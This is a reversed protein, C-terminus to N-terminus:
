ASGGTGYIEQKLKNYESFFFDYFAKADGDLYDSDDDLMIHVDEWNLFRGYHADLEGSIYQRNANLIQLIRRVDGAELRDCSGDRSLVHYCLDNLPCYINDFLAKRNEKIRAKDERRDQFWEEVYSKLSVTIVSAFLASCFSSVSPHMSFFEDLCELM